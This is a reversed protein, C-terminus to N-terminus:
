DSGRVGVQNIYNEVLQVQPRRTSAACSMARSCRHGAPWRAASTPSRRSRPRRSRPRPGRAAARRDRGRGPAASRGCRTPRGARRKSSATPRTGPTALQAQYDALVRRCRGQRKEAADLDTRIRETRGDMGKQHRARRVEVHGLVAPDSPSSAGSSRTRGPLIPSPAEHCDDVRSTSRRGRTPAEIGDGRSRPRARRHERREIGRERGGHGAVAVVLAASFCSRRAAAHASQMQPHERSWAFKLLIFVVFGILALAETFAIGLFMTTRVM